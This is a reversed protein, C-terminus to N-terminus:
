WVTTQFDKVALHTQVKKKPNWLEALPMQTYQIGEFAPDNDKESFLFIPNKPHKQQYECMYNGTWISKGCGSTGFAYM